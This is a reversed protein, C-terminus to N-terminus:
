LVARIADCIEPRPERDLRERALALLREDRLYQLGRAAALRHADDGHEIGGAIRALTGATPARAILYNTDRWVRRGAAERETALDQLMRSLEPNAHSDADIARDLPLDVFAIKLIVRNFDVQEFGHRGVTRALLNSDCVAAEFHNSTNTRQAEGLLTVTAAVVPMCTMARYIMAKEEMDGHYYLDLLVEESPNGARILLLAGADCSRWAALDVRGDDCTYEADPVALTGAFQDRGLRRPLQPLLVPLNKAVDETVQTTAEALWQRATDTLTELVQEPTAM